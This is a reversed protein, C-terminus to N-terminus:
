LVTFTFHKVIQYESGNSPIETVPNIDDQLYIKIFVVDGSGYSSMNLTYKHFFEDTTSQYFGTEIKPPTIVELAYSPQSSFNFLNKSFKVENYTLQDSSLLDDNVSFWFDVSTATSPIYITGRPQERSLPTAQGTLFAICGRMEPIKNPELPTNGFIDKAGNDIWEKINPILQDKVGHWVHSQDPDYVIDATLPMVQSNNDFTSIGSADALLRAYLVSKDSEGPKVRYEYTETSNNKIVPQYVLTSYSSEITRFDPPFMGGDHCGSNACYPRFVNNQLAAFSTPNIFYNTDTNNPPDLSPDDYPNITDKQCSFLIFCFIISWFVRM